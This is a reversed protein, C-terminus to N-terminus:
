SDRPSPSTYLLCSIIIEDLDQTKELAYLKFVNNNESFTVTRIYYYPHKLTIEIPIEYTTPLTFFGQANTEAIVENNILITVGLIGTDAYNNVRGSITQAYLLNTITTLCIVVMIKLLTFKM